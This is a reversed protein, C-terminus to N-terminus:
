GADSPQSLVIASCSLLAYDKLIYVNDPKSEILNRDYAITKGRRVLGVRGIMM